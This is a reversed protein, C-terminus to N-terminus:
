IDNAHQDCIVNANALRDFRSQDRRFQEGATISSPEADKTRRVQAILPLLFQAVLKM